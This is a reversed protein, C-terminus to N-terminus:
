NDHVTLSHMEPSAIAELAPKEEVIEEVVQPEEEVTEEVVESEEEVTSEAQPSASIGLEAFTADIASNIENSIYDKPLYKNINQSLEEASTVHVRNRNILEKFAGNGKDLLGEEEYIVKCADTAEAYSVEKEITGDKYFIQAKTEEKNEEANWVKYFVINEIPKNFM